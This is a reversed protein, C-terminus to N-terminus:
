VVQRFMPQPCENESLRYMLTVKDVTLSYNSPAPADATFPFHLLDDNQESRWHVYKKEVYYAAASAQNVGM